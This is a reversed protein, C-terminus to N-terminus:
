CLGRVLAIIAIGIGLSATLVAWGSNLGGRGDPTRALSLLWGAIWRGFPGGCAIWSYKREYWNKLIWPDSRSNRYVDIASAMLPRAAVPLVLVAVLATLILCSLFPAM